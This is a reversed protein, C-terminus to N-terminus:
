QNEAPVISAFLAAVHDALTAADGQLEAMAQEYTLGAAQIAESFTYVEIKGFKEADENTFSKDVNFSTLSLVYDGTDVAVKGKVEYVFVDFTRGNIVVDSIKTPEEVGYRITGDDYTTNANNFNTHFLVRSDEPNADEVIVYNRIYAADEDNHTNVCKNYYTTVGPELKTEDVYEAWAGNEYKMEEIHIDVGGMTFTNEKHDTDTFYALTAGAVAIALMAVVLMMAFIKKKM